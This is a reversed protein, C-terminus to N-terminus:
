TQRGRVLGKVTQFPHLGANVAKSAANVTADYSGAVVGKSGEALASRVIAALREGLKDVNWAFDGQFWGDRFEAYFYGEPPSGSQGAGREFRDERAPLANGGGVPRLASVM